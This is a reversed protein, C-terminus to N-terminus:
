SERFLVALSLLKKFRLFCRKAKFKSFGRVQCNGAGLWLFARFSSKVLIDCAGVYPANVVCRQGDKGVIKM